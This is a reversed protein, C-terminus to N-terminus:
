YTKWIAIRKDKYSFYLDDDRFCLGVVSNDTITDLATVEFSNNTMILINNQTTDIGLMYFFTGKNELAYIGNYTTDIFNLDFRIDRGSQFSLDKSFTRARFQNLTDLNRYIAILSDIEIQYSIGCPQWNATITDMTIDAMDATASYKFLLHTTKSQLYLDTGDNDIALYGQGNMLLDYKDDIVTNNTVNDVYYKFLDIQSGVNTSLDNNTTFFYYNLFTIDSIDDDYTNKSSDSFFTNDCSLTLFLFILSYLLRVM